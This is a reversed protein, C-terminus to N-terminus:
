WALVAARLKAVHKQRRRPFPCTSCLSQPSRSDRNNRHSSLRTGFAYCVRWRGIHGFDLNRYTFGIERANHFSRAALLNRHGSQTLASM